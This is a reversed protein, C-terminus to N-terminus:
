EDLHAYVKRLKEKKKRNHHRKWPKGEVAAAAGFAEGGQQIFERSHVAIGRSGKTHAASGLGAFYEENFNRKKLLAQGEYAKLLRRDTIANATASAEKALAKSSRPYRHFEQQPVTPPAYCFLLRGCVFDKLLYRAARSTDPLGRATMFGKAYGYASLLELATAKRNEEDEEQGGFDDESRRPLMLGYRTEFVHGPIRAAIAAIPPVAEKMQDIPLIGNIIMESKSSVVNPFVLGPCDCITLQDDLLITQFHKTKGPMASVSVAKSRLLANITSSKGVNPYGILGVTLPGELLAVDEPLRSRLSKFYAILESYSLPTYLRKRAESDAEAEIETQLNLSELKTEVVEEEDEEEEESSEAEKEEVEEEAITTPQQKGISTFYDFWHRRQRETLYDSKNLLIVPLKREGGVEKIYVDLDECFFLLPNRADLIQVLVDSREVVRWLQRWFDLNKEFPTLVLDDREQLQALRRRWKLYSENEAQHLEVALTSPQSVAASEIIKINQREAVFQKNSMEATSLFDDLSTNETISKANSPDDHVTHRESLQDATPRRKKSKILSRGLVQMTTKPRPRM